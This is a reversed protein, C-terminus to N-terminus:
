VHGKARYTTSTSSIELDQSNRTNHLRVVKRASDNEYGEFDIKLCDGPNYDYIGDYNVTYVRNVALNGDYHITGKNTLTYNNYTPM